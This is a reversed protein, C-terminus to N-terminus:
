VNAITRRIDEPLQAYIADTFTQLQWNLTANNGFVRSRLDCELDAYFQERLNTTLVPTLVSDDEFPKLWSDFFPNMTVVATRVQPNLKDEFQIYLRQYLPEDIVVHTKALLLNSLSENVRDDAQNLLSANLGAHLRLKELM